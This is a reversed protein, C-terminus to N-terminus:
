KLKELILELSNKINSIDKKLNNYDNIFKNDSDNDITNNVKKELIKIYEIENNLEVNLNSNTNKNISITTNELLDINDNSLSLSLLSNSKDLKISNENSNFLEESLDLFSIKKKSKEKDLNSNNLIDNLESDRNKILSDYSINNVFSENEDEFKPKEPHKISLFDNMNNQHENLKKNFDFINNKERSVSTFDENIKYLKLDNYIAKLLLKNLELKTMNINKNYIEDFKDDILKKVNDIRSEPIDNFGGEELIINWIISKNENSIFNKSM